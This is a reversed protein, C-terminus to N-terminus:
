RRKTLSIEWRSGVTWWSLIYLSLREGESAWTKAPNNAAMRGTAHCTQCRAESAVPVVVDTEGLLEGTQKDHASVRLMPYPNNQGADDIPTIPIGEASFWNRQSNYHLQQMDNSNDAPMYLGTLGQGAPLSQGFLGFAYQWFNTKDVSSSNISGSRDKVASYRLEVQTDDLLEPLGNSGQKIV